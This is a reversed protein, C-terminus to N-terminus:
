NRRGTPKAGVILLLGRPQITHRREHVDPSDGIATLAKAVRGALEQLSQEPYEPSPESYELTLGDRLLIGTGFSHQWKAQWGADEFAQTLEKAYKLAENGASSLAVIEIPTGKSTPLLRVLDAYKQGLARDDIRGELELQKRKADAAEKELVAVQRRLILNGKELAEARLTMQALEHNVAALRLDNERSGVRWVWFALLATVVGTVISSGIVWIISIRFARKHEKGVAEIDSPSSGTMSEASNANVAIM